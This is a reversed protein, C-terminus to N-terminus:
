TKRMRCPGKVDIKGEELTVRFANKNTKEEIIYKELGKIVNLVEKRLDEGIDQTKGVKQRLVQVERSFFHLIASITRYSSKEENVYSFGYELITNDDMERILFAMKGDLVNGVTKLDALGLNSSKGTEIKLNKTVYWRGTIEEGEKSATSDQQEVDMKEVETNSLVPTSEDESSESSEEEM